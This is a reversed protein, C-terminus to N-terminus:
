SFLDFFPEEEDSESDSKAKVNTEIVIPKVGSRKSKKDTTTNKDTVPQSQPSNGSLLDLYYNIQGNIIREIIPGRFTREQTKDDLQGLVQRTFPTIIIGEERAIREASECIKGGTM